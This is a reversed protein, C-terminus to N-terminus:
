ADDIGEVIVREIFRIGVTSGVGGANLRAKLEKEVEAYAEPEGSCLRKQLSDDVSMSTTTRVIIDKM